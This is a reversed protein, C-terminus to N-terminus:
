ACPSSDKSITHFAQICSFLSQIVIPIELHARIKSSLSVFSLHSWLTHITAGQISGRNSSCLNFMDFIWVVFTRNTKQRYPQLRGWWNIRHFLRAVSLVKSVLGSVLGTLRGAVTRLQAPPLSVPQAVPYEPTPPSARMLVFGLRKLYAYM